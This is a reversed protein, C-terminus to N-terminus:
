TLHVVDSGIIDPSTALVFWDTSSAFASVDWTGTASGSGSGDTTVTLPNGVITCPNKSYLDFAYTADPTAKRLRVSATITDGTRKFGVGGVRGIITADGACQNNLGQWLAAHGGGAVAVPALVAWVVLAGAIIFTAGFRRLGVRAHM